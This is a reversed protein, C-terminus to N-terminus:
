VERTKDPVEVQIAGYWTDIERIITCRTPEGSVERRVKMKIPRSKALRLLNGLISSGPQQPYTSSYYREKRRFRPRKSLGKFWGTFAKDLRINVDQLVQSHVAKLYKKNAKRTGLSM